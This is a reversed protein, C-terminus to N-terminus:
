ARQRYRRLTWESKGLREALAALGSAVDGKVLAGGRRGRAPVLTVGLAALAAPLAPDSKARHWTMTAKAGIAERVEDVTAAGPEMGAAYALLTARVGAKIVPAKGERPLKRTQAAWPEVRAGPLTRKVADLVRDADIQYRWNPLRLFVDCPECTGNERTMTRLRIRGMAQALQAAIRNERVIRVEDLPQNLAEDDLEAGNVAMFTNLDLSHTGYPLTAILLTDFDRWENRGDIKNWHAVDFAAFGAEAGVNTFHDRGVKTVVVLVRRESARDGYHARLAGMLDAALKEGKREVAGKGTDPSRAEHITVASYNRVPATDRVEFEEPRGIYVNNLHGTADLIVGHTGPPMLLLRNGSLATGAGNGSTWRYAGLHRRLATLVQGMDGRTKPDLRKSARLGQEWMALLHADAAETTFPTLALMEEATFTRHRGDPAERLVRNVSEIVRMAEPHRKEVDRPMQALLQKLVDRPIRSEHVQDLAEDIFVLARQSLNADGRRRYEHMKQFKIRSVDVAFDDLGTEYSKHCVVLVPYSALVDLNQREALRLGSHHAFATYPLGSWDNIERAYEDAQDKTRVVILVGPHDGNFPMMACYTKVAMTKGAGLEAPIVPWRESPDTYTAELFALAAGGCTERLQQALAAYEDVPATM